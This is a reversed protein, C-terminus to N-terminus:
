ERNFNHSRLEDALGRAAARGERYSGANIHIDGNINLTRSRETRSPPPRNVTVPEPTPRSVAGVAAAGRVLDALVGMPLVAEPGHLQMVPNAGSPIFAGHQAGPPEDQGGGGGGGGIDPPSLDPWDPTWSDIKSQAASLADNVAGAIDFKNKFKDYASKAKNRIKTPLDWSTIKSIIDSIVNEVETLMEGFWHKLKEFAANVKNEIAQKAAEFKTEVANKIDTLTDKLFTLIRGWIDELFAKVANFIDPIVSGGILERGWQIFAAIADDLVGALWTLFRKGWKTVFSIIGDLTRELFGAIENWVTSWDGEIAALAVDIATELADLAFGVAGLIADFVFKVLTIIEDGWRDWSAAITNLAGKIIPFLVDFLKTIVTLVLDALKRIVRVVKDGHNQWFTSLRDLLPKVVRVIARGVGRFVDVLLNFSKKVMTIVKDGHERWLSSVIRLGTEVAGRVLRFVAKFGAVVNTALKKIAALVQKRHTLWWNLAFRLGKRVAKGIRALGAVFEGLARTLFTGVTREVDQGHGVFLGLIDGLVTEVLTKVLPLTLDFQQKVADLAVRTVDRIGAFDDKWAKALLGVAFIVAGIPGLLARLATRVVVSAGGLDGIAGAAGAAVKGLTFVVPALLLGTAVLKKAGDSLESFRNTAKGFADLMGTVAPEIVKLVVTGLELLPPIARLLAKGMRRVPPWAEEFTDMLVRGAPAANNMIYEVFRRLPPMAVRALDFMGGIIAPIVDMAVAGWRKLERKFQDLPGIAAVVRRTLEPLAEVADVMLPGFVEGLPAIIRKIEKTAQKFAAQLEEMHTTVGALALGGFAGAVSGVALALGGLVVVLPGLVTALTGLAPILSLTAATALASQAVTAGMAAASYATLAGSAVGSKATVNTLEDEVEDAARGLRRSGRAADEANEEFRELGKRATRVARMLDDADGTIDLKLKDGDGNSGGPTLPM